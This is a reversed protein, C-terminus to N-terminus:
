WREALKAGLSQPLGDGDEPSQAGHRLPDAGTPAAPNRNMVQEGLVVPLVGVSQGRSGPAQVWQVSAALAGAVAPLAFGAVEGVRRGGCGSSYGM